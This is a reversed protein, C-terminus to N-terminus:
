WLCCEAKPRVTALSWAVDLASVEDHLDRATASEKRKRVVYQPGDSRNPRRYGNWKARFFAFQRQRECVLRRLTACLGDVPAYFQIRQTDCLFTTFKACQPCHTASVAVGNIVGDNDDPISALANNDLFSSLCQTALQAVFDLDSHRLRTRVKEIVPYLTCRAAKLTRPLAAQWASTFAQVDGPAALTLVEIVDVVCTPSVNQRSMATTTTAYFTGAISKVPDTVLSLTSVAVPVTPRKIFHLIGGVFHGHFSIRQYTDMTRKTCQGFTHLADLNSGIDASSVSALARGHVRGGAIEDLATSMLSVYRHLSLTPQSAM